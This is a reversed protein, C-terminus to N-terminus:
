KRKTYQKANNETTIIILNEYIAIKSVVSIKNYYFVIVSGELLEYNGNILETIVGEKSISTKQFVSEDFFEISEYTGAEVRHWYGILSVESEEEDKM